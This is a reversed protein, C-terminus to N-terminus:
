REGFGALHSDVDRAMLVDSSFLAPTPTPREGALAATIADRIVTAESVGRRRAAAAVAKRLEDPLYLTTKHM